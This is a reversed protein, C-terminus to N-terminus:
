HIYIVLSYLITIFEGGDLYQTIENGAPKASIKNSKLMKNLKSSSVVTTPSDAVRQNLTLQERYLILADQFAKRYTNRWIAEWNDSLFFQFRSDPALM